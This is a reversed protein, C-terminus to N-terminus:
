ISIKFLIQNILKKFNVVAWNVRVRLLRVHVLQSSL